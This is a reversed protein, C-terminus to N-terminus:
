AAELQKCAVSEAAQVIKEAIPEGKHLLLWAALSECRRIREALIRRYQEHMAKGYDWEALGPLRRVFYAAPLMPIDIGESSSAADALLRMRDHLHDVIDVPSVGRIHLDNALAQMEILARERLIKARQNNNPKVTSKDHQLTM